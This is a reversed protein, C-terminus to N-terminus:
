YHTCTVLVYIYYAINIAIYLSITSIPGYNNLSPSIMSRIHWFIVVACFFTLAIQIGFITAVLNYDFLENTSDASTGNIGPNWMIYLNLFCIAFLCLTVPGEHLFEDVEHHDQSQQNQQPQQSQPQQSLPAATNNQEAPTPAAAYIASSKQSNSHDNSRGFFKRCYRLCPMWPKLTVLIGRPDEWIAIAMGIVAGAYFNIGTQSISQGWILSLPTSLWQSKPFASSGDYAASYLVMPLICPMYARLFSWSRPVHVKRQRKLLVDSRAVIMYPLWYIRNVVNTDRQYYAVIAAILLWLLNLIFDQHCKASHYLAARRSMLVLLKEEIRSGVGNSVFILKMIIRDMELVFVAAVTHEIIAVTDESITLVMIATILCFPSLWYVQLWRLLQLPLLLLRVKRLEEVNNHHVTYDTSTHFRRSVYDCLYVTRLSRSTAATIIAFVIPVIVVDLHRWEKFPGYVKTSCVEFWNEPLMVAETLHEKEYFTSIAYDCSM